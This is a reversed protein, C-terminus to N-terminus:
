RGLWHNGILNALVWLALGVLPTAVLYRRFDAPTVPEGMGTLANGTRFELWRGLLMGGLILFYGLDLSTFWGSNRQAINLAFVLLFMPGAIMWFIRGFFAASSTTSDTSM